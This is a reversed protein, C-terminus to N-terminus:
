AGKEALRRQLERLGIVEGDDDSSYFGRRAHTVTLKGQQKGKAAVCPEGVAANCEFCWRLRRQEDLNIWTGNSRWLFRDKRFGLPGKPGQVRQHTAHVRGYLGQPGLKVGLAQLAYDNAKDASAFGGTRTGTAHDSRKLSVYWAGGGEPQIQWSGDGFRGAYGSGSTQLIRDSHHNHPKDCRMNIAKMRRTRRRAKPEVRFGDAQLVDAIHEDTLDPHAERLERVAQPLRAEVRAIGLRARHDQVAHRTLPIGRRALVGVVEVDTFDPHEDLIGRIHGEVHKMRAQRFTPLGAARLWRRLTDPDVGLQGAAMDRSLRGEAVRRLLTALAESPPKM